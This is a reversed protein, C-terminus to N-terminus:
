DHILEKYHKKIIDNPIETFLENENYCEAWPTNKEHTIVSLQTGRYNSYKSFVFDVINKKTLDIAITFFKKRETLLVNDSLSTKCYGLRDIIDGGYQKFKYYVIPIVPGYKWAEIRDDILSKDLVALSYGHSIYVLKNVQMPTLPTEKSLLYDAILLSSVGM